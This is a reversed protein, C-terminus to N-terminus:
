YCSAKSDTGIRNRVSQKLCKPTLKWSTSLPEVGWPNITQNRVSVIFQYSCLIDVSCYSTFLLFPLILLKLYASQLRLFTYKSEAKVHISQELFSVNILGPTCLRPQPGKRSITKVVHKYEQFAIEEYSQRTDTVVIPKQWHSSVHPAFAGPILLQLKENRVQHEDVRFLGKLRVPM